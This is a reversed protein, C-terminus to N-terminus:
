SILRSFLNLCCFLKVCLDGCMKLTLWCLFFYFSETASAIISVSSSQNTTSVLLLHGTCFTYFLRRSKVYVCLAHVLLSVEVVAFINFPTLTNKKICASTWRCNRFSLFSHSQGVFSSCVPFGETSWVLSNCLRTLIKDTGFSQTITLALVYVRVTFDEWLYVRAHLPFPFFHHVRLKTDALSKRPVSALWNAAQRAHSCAALIGSYGQIM